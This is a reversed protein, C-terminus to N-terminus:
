QPPRTDGRKRNRSENFRSRRYLGAIGMARMGGLAAAADGAAVPLAVYVWDVGLAAFAANHLVPSLSHGIPDGILGAVRTVASPWVGPVASIM